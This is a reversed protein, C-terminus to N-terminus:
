PPAEHTQPANAPTAPANHPKPIAVCLLSALTAGVRGSETLTVSRSFPQPMWVIEVEAHPDTCTTVVPHNEFACVTGDSDLAIHTAWDPLNM